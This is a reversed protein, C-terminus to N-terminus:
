GRVEWRAQGREGPFKIRNILSDEIIFKHEILHDFFSKMGNFFNAKSVFNINQGTSRIEGIQVSVIRFLHQYFQDLNCPAIAWTERTVAPPLVLYDQRAVTIGMVDITREFLENESHVVHYLNEPRKAPDYFKELITETQDIAGDFFGDINALIIPRDSHLLAYLFEEFTGLGGPLITVVGSKGVMMRTREEREACMILENLVPMDNHEAELALTAETAIGVVYGGNDAFGKAYAGMMSRSGGGYIGGIGNGSLRVAYNYALKIYKEELTRGSCFGAVLQRVSM